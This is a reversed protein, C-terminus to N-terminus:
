LDQHPGMTTTCSPTDDQNHNSIYRLDFFTLKTCVEHACIGPPCSPVNPLGRKLYKEQTKKSEKWTAVLMREFTVQSAEPYHVLDYKEDGCLMIYALQDKAMVM